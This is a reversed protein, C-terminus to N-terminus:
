RTGLNLFNIRVSLAGRRFKQGGKFKTLRSLISPDLKDKSPDVKKEDIMKFWEHELCQSSTLREKPDRKLMGEILDRATEDIKLYEERKFDPDNAKIQNLVMTTNRGNYPLVGTLLLYM